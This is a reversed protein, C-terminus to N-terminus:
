MYLDYSDLAEGGCVDDDPIPLTKWIVYQQWTLRIM